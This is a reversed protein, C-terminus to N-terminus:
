EKYYAFSNGVEVFRFPPKHKLLSESVGLFLYSDSPMLEYFNNIIQRVKEDSFYIFVNRCFIYRSKAFPKYENINTLNVNTFRVKQHIEKDIQWIGNKFTFYKERLQDPCNRFAREKYVGNIAHSLASNSADSGIIEIKLKSFWDNENLLMAISLPEEGTSCAASWITFKEESHKSAQNPLIVETFAKLQDVERFFYTENVTVINFLVKLESGDNDDYKLFYYYDLFSNLGLELVRPSLKDILIEQASNNYFIGTKEHILDRLLTFSKDTIGLTERYFRM